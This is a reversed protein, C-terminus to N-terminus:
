CMKRQRIMASLSRIAARDLVARATEIQIQRETLDRLQYSLTTESDPAAQEMMDVCVHIRCAEAETLNNGISDSIGKMTESQAESMEAILKDM